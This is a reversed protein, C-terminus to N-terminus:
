PAVEAPQAARTTSDLRGAIALLVPCAVAWALGIVGYVLWIRQPDMFVADWAVAAVWYAFPGGIAGFIVALLTNSKLWAMSHNLTLAFAVWMSWIWVPALETTPVPTAYTLLQLQVYVTDLMVGLVLVLGLLKLDLAVNASRSLEWAAFLAVAVPGLWWYGQAGGWVCAAWCIQFGVFNLIMHMNM